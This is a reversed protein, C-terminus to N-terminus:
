KNHYITTTDVKCGLQKLRERILEALDKRIVTETDRLFDLVRRPSYKANKQCLEFWAKCVELPLTRSLNFLHHTMTWGLEIDEEEFARLIIITYTSSTVDQKLSKLVELSDRWAHTCCLGM